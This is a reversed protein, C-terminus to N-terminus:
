LWTIQYGQTANFNTTPCFSACADRYYVLYYRTNGTVLPDGLATSQALVGPGFTYTGGSSAGVNIRKLSGGFCRVGDGFVVGTALLSSGQLLISTLNQNFGLCSPGASAIGTATMVLTDGLTSASGTGNLMAGGTSASNECGKGAAGNNGCPCAIVGGTNPECFSTGPAIPCGVNKAGPTPPLIPQTAVPDFDLWANLSWAAPADCPRFIGPVVSTPFLPDPLVVVSGDFTQDGAGSDTVSIIDVITCLTPLVTTTGAAVRVDTNLLATIAAPTATTVLYITASGNEIGNATPPGGSGITIDPTVNTDGIVFYGSPRLSFTSLDQALKLRGQTTGTDGEVYLLMYGSLSASPPGVLEYFEHTDTNLESIYVENLNISQASAASAAVALFATGALLRLAQM